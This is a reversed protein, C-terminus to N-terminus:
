KGNYNIVSFLIIYNINYLYYSWVNTELHLKNM